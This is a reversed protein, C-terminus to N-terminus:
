KMCAQGSECVASIPYKSQCLANVYVSQLENGTLSSTDVTWVALMGPSFRQNGTDNYQPTLQTRNLNVVKRNSDIVSMTFNYLYETGHSYHLTINSTTGYKVETIEMVSKACKMQKDAVDSTDEMREKSFPSIWMIFIGAIGVAFAILLITAILPSIGKKSLKSVVSM